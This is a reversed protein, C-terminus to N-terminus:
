FKSAAFIFNYNKKMSKIIIKTEKDVRLSETIKQLSKNYTFDDLSNNKLYDMTQKSFKIYCISITWAVAMKAYYGPHKITDLSKIVKDIYEDNIYFHLLMVVGFRVEFEKNSSLFPQIFNWVHEMNNKTFKLGACFSDCVSWNDIKPVFDAVYQLIEEIDAKAYGLVLGQLMIEEFYKSDYNAMFKRWDDKAIAKALKRLQPLRVGLINDTNPLLSSSFKQYEKDALEFIQERITKNM